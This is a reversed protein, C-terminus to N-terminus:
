TAGGIAWWYYTVANTNLASAAALDFGANTLDVTTSAILTTGRLGTEQDNQGDFVYGVRTADGVVGIFVLQPRFGVAISRLAGSGVYTGRQIRGIGAALQTAGVGAPMISWVGAVNQLTVGDPHPPSVVAQM